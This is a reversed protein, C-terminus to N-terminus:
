CYIIVNVKEIVDNVDFIEEKRPSKDLTNTISKLHRRKKQTPDDNEM